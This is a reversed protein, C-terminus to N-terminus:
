TSARSQFSYGKPESLLPIAGSSHTVPDYAAYQSTSPQKLRQVLEFSATLRFALIQLSQHFCPKTICDSSSYNIYFEAINGFLNGFPFTGQM